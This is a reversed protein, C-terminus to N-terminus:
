NKIVRVTKENIGQKVVVNYIGTALKSGIELSELQSAEINSDEILKGLMDYVKITISEESSTTINLKFSDKFPNPSSIVEFSTLEDSVMKSGIGSSITITQFLNNFGNAPDWFTGSLLVPTGTGVKRTYDGSNAFQISYLDRHTTIVEDPLELHVNYVGDPIVTSSGIPIMNSLSRSLTINAGAYWARINTSYGPALVMDTDVPGQMNFRFTGSGNTLVLNVNRPNFVNAFGENVAHIIITHATTITSDLLRFRYGLRRKVEDLCNSGGPLTTTAWEGTVPDMVDEYYVYNLYNYHYDEMQNISTKVLPNSTSTCSNYTTNNSNSEGGTFTTKSKTALYSRDSNGNDGSIDRYTGEDLRDHMFADNHAATRAYISNDYKPYLKPNRLTPALLKQFYPTRFAVMRNPTMTMIANAVETRNNRFTTPVQADLATPDGLGFSSAPSTTKSYYWEGFNGIFGAEMSSIVDQNAITITRLQNIHGPTAPLPSNRPVGLMRDISAEYVNNPNLNGPIPDPFAVDDGYYNSYSFRLICKLGRARLEAFDLTLNDLFTQPIANTTKYQDLRITFHILSLQQAIADDLDGQADIHLLSRYPGAFDDPKTSIGYYLGREPNAFHATNSQYNIRVQAKAITTFVLLAYIIKKMIHINRQHLKKLTTAVIIGSKM